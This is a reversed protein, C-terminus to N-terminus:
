VKVESNEKIIEQRNLHRNFSAFFHKSSNPLLETFTDISNSILELYTLITKKTQKKTQKKIQNLVKLKVFRISNLIHVLYISYM